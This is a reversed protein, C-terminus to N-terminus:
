RVAKLGCSIAHINLSDLYFNVYHYKQGAYVWILRYMRATQDSDVSNVLLINLGNIGQTGYFPCQCVTDYLKFSKEHEARSIMVNIRSIFRLNSIVAFEKKSFM